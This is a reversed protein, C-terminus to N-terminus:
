TEFGSYAPNYPKSTNKLIEWQLLALQRIHGLDHALWSSLVDGASMPKGGFGNGSHLADLDPNDIGDLWTVSKDREDSFRGISDALDAENYKRSVVWEHINFSPWNTEPHFLVIDFDSRFDEIEIDILHRMVELVSWRDPSPKWAAQESSIDAVLNLIIQKNLVLREVSRQYDM